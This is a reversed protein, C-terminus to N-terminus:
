IFFEDVQQHCESESILFENTKKREEGSNFNMCLGRKGATIFFEMVVFVHFHSFYQVQM